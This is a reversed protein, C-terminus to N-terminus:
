HQPRVTAGDGQRLWRLPGGYAICGRTIIDNIPYDTGYGRALPPFPHAANIEFILKEPEEVSRDM